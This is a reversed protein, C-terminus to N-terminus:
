EPFWEASRIQPTARGIGPVYVASPAGLRDLMMAEDSLTKSELLVDAVVQEYDGVTFAYGYRQAEAVVYGAAQERSPFGSTVLHHRLVPHGALFEVFKKVSHAGVPTAELPGLPAFSFNDASSSGPPM